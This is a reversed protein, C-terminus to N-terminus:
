PHGQPRHDADPGSARDPGAGAPTWKVLVAAGTVLGNYKGYVALMSGDDLVTAGLHGCMGDYWKNANFYEYAHLTIRHDLNWTRGHDHSILADMGRMPSSLPTGRWNGGPRVDNRVVLTMVLDGGPLRHLKPHHRGAEFLINLDSWTEGDDESISVGTGEVGDDVGRTFFRPPVDTRVAAVLSGNAARVLSGESVGREYDIGQYTDTYKWTSPLIHGQWTRGGDESYRFATDLVNDAPWDSWHKGVKLHFDLEMVRIANGDRDFDVADNGETGGVNEVPIGPFMGRPVSEPWTRGYDSSFFRKLNSTYFLNGRGLYAATAPRAAAGSAESPLRRFASWTNGGDDSFSIVPRETEGDHWSAFLVVEGNDMQKLGFPMLYNGGPRIEQIQAAHAVVGGQGNGARIQHAQWEARASVGPGTVFVMPPATVLLVMWGLRSDPRTM